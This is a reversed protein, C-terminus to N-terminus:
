KKLMEVDLILKQIQLDIDSFKTTREDLKGNITAQETRMQDLLQIIPATKQTYDSETFRPAKTFEEMQEIQVELKIVAERLSIVSSGIWIVAALTLTTMMKMVTDVLSKNQSKDESKGKLLTAFFEKDNNTM